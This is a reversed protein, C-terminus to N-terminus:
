SPSPTMAVHSDELCWAAVMDNGLIYQKQRRYEAETRVIHNYYDSQWLLGRRGVRRNILHSSASKWTQLLRTLDGAHAVQVLVHVHNPMIGFAHLKYRVGEGKRIVAIFIDGVGPKALVCEGHGSDLYEQVKKAFLRNCKAIAAKTAVADGGVSPPIAQSPPSATAVIKAEASYNM